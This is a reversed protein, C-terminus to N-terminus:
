LDSLWDNTGEGGMAYNMGLKAATAFPDAGNSVDYAAFAPASMGGTAANVAMRGLSTDVFPKSVQHWADTLAETTGCM